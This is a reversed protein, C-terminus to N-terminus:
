VFGMKMESRSLGLRANFQRGALMRQLKYQAIGFM